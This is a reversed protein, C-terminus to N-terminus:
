ANELIRDLDNAFSRLEDRLYAPCWEDDATDRKEVALEAIAKRLRLLETAPDINNQFTM